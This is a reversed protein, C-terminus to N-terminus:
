MSRVNRPETYRQNSIPLSHMKTSRDTPMRRPQQITIPALCFYFPGRLPFAMMKNDSRASVIRPRRGLDGKSISLDQAGQAASGSNHSLM